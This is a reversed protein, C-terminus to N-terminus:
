FRDTSLITQGSPYLTTADDEATIFIKSPKYSTVASFSAKLKSSFTGSSSKLQGLNKTEDQDSVLWVVYTERAPQLRNVEALNSINIKVKYNNNNDKTVKVDGRAAPVVASNEFKAKTVCSTFSFILLITLVSLFINKTMTALSAAKMKMKTILIYKFSGLHIEVLLRSKRLHNSPTLSRVYNMKQNALNLRLNVLCKM